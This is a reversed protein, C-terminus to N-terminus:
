YYESSSVHHQQTPRNQQFKRKILPALDKLRAQRRTEAIPLKDMALKPVEALEGHVPSPWVRPYWPGDYRTVQDATRGANAEDWLVSLETSFGPPIVASGLGYRISYRRFIPDDKKGVLTRNFTVTRHFLWRTHFIVDGRKVDYVRRTEEMRRNLHHAVEKLNCTGTGSRQAVMDSANKYGGKPFIASAGTAIYAEHRWAATHSGVALAFGGGLHIPMDHLAVWANIGDCDPTAPWFGLDDVHWGCYYPDKDKALFIDRLVRVSDRSTESMDTKTQRLLLYSALQSVSSNVATELFAATDNQFIVGHKSTFFQTSGRSRGKAKDHQEQIFMDSEHLLRQLLNDSILGRVAVVGDKQYAHHLEKKIAQDDSDNDLISEPRLDFIRPPDIAPIPGLQDYPSKPTQLFLACGFSLFLMAASLGLAVSSDGLLAFSRLWSELRTPQASSFEFATDESGSPESTDKSQIPDNDPSLAKM